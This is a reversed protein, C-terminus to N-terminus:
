RSYFEIILKVNVDQILDGALPKSVVKITLKNLDVELWAPIKTKGKNITMTEKIKKFAKSGEKVVVEDNPKVQYSPINVRRGNVKLHGHNVIQRAMNRSSAFSARYIVNDLRLELLRLLNEEDNGTFKAARTAYNRLQKELIGYIKKVKQKERLQRGYESIKPYGKPGHLGPPYKRKIFACKSSYCKEGKLFLKMGERRCLKCKPSLNRAM